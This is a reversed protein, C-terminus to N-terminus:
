CAVGELCRLLAIVRLIKDDSEYITVTTEWLRTVGDADVRPHRLSVRKEGRALANRIAQVGFTGVFRDREVGEPIANVFSAAGDRLNMEPSVDGNAYYVHMKNRTMDAVICYPYVQAAAMAFLQNDELALDKRTENESVSRTVWLVHHCRGNEDRDVAVFTGECWGSRRSDYPCTLSDMRALRDSLTTLDMFAKMIPVYEPKVTELCRKEMLAGADPYEGNLESGSHDGPHTLTALTNRDLDIYCAALYLKALSEVVLKRERLMKMYDKEQAILQLGLLLSTVSGEGDRHVPMLMCRSWDGRIGLYDVSIVDRGALRDSVTHMDLFEQMGPIFNKRILGSICKGLQETVSGPGGSEPVQQRLFDSAQLTQYSMTTMDIHYLGYYAGCVSQIISISDEALQRNEAGILLRSNFDRGIQLQETRDKYVYGISLLFFEKNAVHVNFRYESKLLSLSNSLFASYLDYLDGTPLRGDQQADRMANVLTSSLFCYRKLNELEPPLDTGRILMDLYDFLMPDTKQLDRLVDLMQYFCEPMGPHGHDQLRDLKGRVYLLTDCLLGSKSSFRQSVLGQTVGSVKAIETLTGATYGRQGFVEVAARLMREDTDQKRQSRQTVRNTM